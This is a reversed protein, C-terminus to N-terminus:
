ESAQEPPTVRLMKQERELLDAAERSARLTEQFLKNSLPSAPSMFNNGLKKGVTFAAGILMAVIILKFSLGRNKDKREELKESYTKSNAIVAQMELATMDMGAPTEIKEIETTKKPGYKNDPRSGILCILAGLLPIILFCLVAWIGALGIDHFRRVAISMSPCITLLYFGFDIRDSVLGFMEPNLSKFFFKFYIIHIAGYVLMHFFLFGWYEKRTARGSYLLYQKFIVDLYYKKFTEM